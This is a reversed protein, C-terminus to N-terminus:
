TCGTHSLSDKNTPMTSHVQVLYSNSSVAASRHMPHLASPQGTHCDTAFPVQTSNVFSAVDSLSPASGGNRLIATSIIGSTSGFLDYTNDASMSARPWVPPQGPQAASADCPLAVVVCLLSHRSRILAIISLVKVPVALIFAYLTLTASVCLTFSLFSARTSLPAPPTSISGLLPSCITSRCATADPSSSVCFSSFLVLSMWLPLRPDSVVGSSSGSFTLFVTCDSCSGEFEAENEVM